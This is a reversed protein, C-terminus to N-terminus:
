DIDNIDQNHPPILTSTDITHRKYRAMSVEAYSSHHGNPLTDTRIGLGLFCFSNENFVLNRLTGSM